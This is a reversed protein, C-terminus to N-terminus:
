YKVRGDPWENDEIYATWQEPTWKDQEASLAATMAEMKRVTSNWKLRVYMRRLWTKEWYEPRGKDLEPQTFEKDLLDNLKM